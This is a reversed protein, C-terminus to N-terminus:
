QVSLSLLTSAMAMLSAMVRVRVADSARSSPFIAGLVSRVSSQHRRLCREAGFTLMRVAALSDAGLGTVGYCFGPAGVVAPVPLSLKLALRIVNGAPSGPICQATGFAIGLTVCALLAVLPLAPMWPKTSALFCNTTM